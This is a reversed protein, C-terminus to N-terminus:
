RYRAFVNQVQKDPCKVRLRSPLHESRECDDYVSCTDSDLASKDNKHNFVIYLQTELTGTSDKLSAMTASVNGRRCLSIDAVADLLTQLRRTLAVDVDQISSSQGDSPLRRNATRLIKSLLDAYYKPDEADISSLQNTGSM